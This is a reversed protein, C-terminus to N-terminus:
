RQGISVGEDIILQETAPIFGNLDVGIFAGVRVTSEVEEMLANQVDVEIAGVGDSRETLDGGGSGQIVQPNATPIPLDRHAAGDDVSNGVKERAPTNLDIPDIHPNNYQSFLRQSPGQTSGISPPSRIDRSRKGRSQSQAQGTGGIAGNPGTKAERIGANPGMGLEQTNVYAPGGSSVMNPSGINEVQAENVEKGSAAKEVEGHVNIEEGKENFSNVGQAEGSEQFDGTKETEVPQDSKEAQDGSMTEEEPRGNKGAVEQRNVPNEDNMGIEGEELEEMVDDEEESESELDSGSEQSDLVSSTEMVPM